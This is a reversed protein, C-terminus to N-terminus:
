TEGIFMYETTPSINGTTIESILTNIFKAASKQDAGGFLWNGDDVLAKIKVLEPLIDKGGESANAYARAWSAYCRASHINQAHARREDLHMAKEILPKAIEIGPGLLILYERLHQPELRKTDLAERGVIVDQGQAKAANFYEYYKEEAQTREEFTPHGVLALIDPLLKKGFIALTQAHEIRDRTNGKLGTLAKTAIVNTLRDVDFDLKAASLRPLGLSLDPFKDGELTTSTLQTIM